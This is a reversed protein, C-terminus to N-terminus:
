FYMMQNFHLGEKRGVVLSVMKTFKTQITDEQGLKQAQMLCVYM